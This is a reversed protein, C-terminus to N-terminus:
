SCKKKCFLEPPQNQITRYNSDVRCVCWTYEEVNFRRPFSRKWTKEVHFVRPTNTSYQTVQMTHKMAIKTLFIIIIMIIIFWIKRISKKLVRSVNWFNTEQSLTSGALQKLTNSCKTPNASLPNFQIYKVLVSTIIVLLNTKWISNLKFHWLNILGDHFLKLFFFM